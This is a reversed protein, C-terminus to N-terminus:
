DNRYFYATFQIKDNVVLGPVNGAMEVLPGSSTSAASGYDEFIHLNGNVSDWIYIYGSPGTGYNTSTYATSKVDMDFPAPGGTSSPTAGPIPISHISFGTANSVNWTLPFGGTPYTGASIAITGRVITNRQTNDHGRPYSFITITATANAM